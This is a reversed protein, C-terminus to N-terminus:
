CPSPDRLKKKAQLLFKWPRSKLKANSKRKKNMRKLLNAWSLLSLALLLLDKKQSRSKPNNPDQNFRFATNDIAQDTSRFKYHFKSSMERALIM